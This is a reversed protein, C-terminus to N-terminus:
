GRLNKEAVNVVEPNKLGAILDYTVVIEDFRKTKKEPRFPYSMCGERSMFRTLKNKSLLRPNIIVLGGMAKAIESGLKPNIVFYRLPSCSVQPQAMAYCDNYKSGGTVFLGNQIGKLIKAAEEVISLPDEVKVGIKLHPPLITKM